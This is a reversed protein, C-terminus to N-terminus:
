SKSTLEEIRNRIWCVVCCGGLLLAMGVLAFPTWWPMEYRPERRPTM